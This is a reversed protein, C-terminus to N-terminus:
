IMMNKNDESYPHPTLIFDHFIIQFESLEVIKESNKVFYDHLKKKFYLLFSFMYPKNIIIECLDIWGEPTMEEVIRNTFM